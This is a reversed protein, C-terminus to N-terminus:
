QIDQGICGSTHCCKPLRDYGQGGLSNLTPEPSDKDQIGEGAGIGGGLM